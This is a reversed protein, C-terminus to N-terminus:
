LTSRRNKRKNEILKIVEMFIFTTSGLLIVLFWDIFNLATTHFPKQLFPMYVVLIQLLITSAVALILPKNSFLGLKFLSVKDSRWNFANFMESITILCFVLTQAKVLSTKLGYLLLAIGQIAILAGIGIGFFVV